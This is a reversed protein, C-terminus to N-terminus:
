ESKRAHSQEAIRGQEAGLDSALGASTTRPKGPRGPEKVENLKGQMAKNQWLGKAVYLEVLSAYFARTARKRRTLARAEYRDLRALQTLPALCNELDAAFEAVLPLKATRV